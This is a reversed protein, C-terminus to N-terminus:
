FFFPGPLRVARVGYLCAFTWATPAVTALVSIQLVTSQRYPFNTLMPMPEVKQAFYPYQVGERGVKVWELTCFTASPPSNTYRRTGPGVKRKITRRQYLVLARLAPSM